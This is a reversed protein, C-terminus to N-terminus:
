KKLKKTKIEHTNLFNTFNQMNVVHFNRQLIKLVTKFIRVKNESSIEMGPFFKLGEIKDGGIIDLPHLLFSPQVRYLKLMIIAFHLYYLMFMKSHNYLYILYSMHFPLKVFPITTIPIELIKRNENIKFYFPENPSSPGSSLWLM